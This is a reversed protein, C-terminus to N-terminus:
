IKPQLQQAQQHPFSSYPPSRPVTTLHCYLCCSFHGQNVGPHPSRAPAPPRLGPPRSCLGPPQTGAPFATRPWHRPYCTLSGQLTPLLPAFLCAGSATSVTFTPSSTSPHFQTPSVLPTTYRAHTLHSPPCCIGPLAPVEFALWLASGRGQLGWATMIPKSCLILMPLAPGQHNSSLGAPPLGHALTTAAGCVEGGGWGWGPGDQHSSILYSGQARLEGRLCLPLPDLLQYTGKASPPQPVGVGPELAM